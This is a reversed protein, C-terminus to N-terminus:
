GVAKLECYSGAAVNVQSGNVESRFRLQLSGGAAGTSINGFVHFPLPTAGASGTANGGTDYAAVASSRWVTASEAIEIGCVFVLPSVPGTLALQLGTTAAAATFAGDFTFVYHRNPLLPFSLGTVNTWGPNVTTSRPASLRRVNVTGITALQQQELADQFATPNALAFSDIEAPTPQPQVSLWTVSVDNGAENMLASFDTLPQFGMGVLIQAVDTRM